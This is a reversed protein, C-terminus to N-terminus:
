APPWASISRSTVTVGGDTTRVPRVTDTSSSSMRLNSPAVISFRWSAIMPALVRASHACISCAACAPM